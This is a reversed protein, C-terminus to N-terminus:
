LATRGSFYSSLQSKGVADNFKIDCKPLNLM